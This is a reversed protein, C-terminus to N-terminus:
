AHAPRNRRRTAHTHTGCNHEVRVSTIPSTRMKEKIVAMAEDTTRICGMTPHPPGPIRPHHRRGSHVGIGQHGPVYFRVIGHSGISSDPDPAHYHPITRDQPTYSRNPLHTLTAARAVNNYAEWSGILTTDSDYLHIQHTAGNFVLTSM